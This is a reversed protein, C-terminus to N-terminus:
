GRLKDVTDDVHANVREELDERLEDLDGTAEDSFTETAHDILEILKEAAHVGAQANAPLLPLIAEGVEKISDFLGKIDAM